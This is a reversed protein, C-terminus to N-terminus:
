HNTIIRQLLILTGMVVARTGLQSVHLDPTVPIAGQLRNLVPSILLDASQSVGGGLLVVDPDYLLVVAAIAQALYDITESLIVEAWPERHRAASFVTEATLLEKQKEPHKDMLLRRAREAIGTGSAIQEFAGFGSYNTGMQSRDLLLYGIEGAMHHVGPHIDGGLVIGAGIGTGIAILVIDKGRWADAGCWTEGLAALNVDNEIVIPCLYREQLRAKLPFNQWDLGPALSVIGSESNIIGPVGIGIGRVPFGKQGAETLLRDIVQLLVQLSEEAHTQHHTFKVEYQIDRNFDVVAGYIKTGGLDIGIILHESGNYEVLESKRDGSVEKDGSVKVWGGMILDDVIRMITPLSIHLEDAIKTRSIPSNCRICELISSRNIARMKLSTIPNIKYQRQM